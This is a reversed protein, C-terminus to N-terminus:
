ASRRRTRQAAHQRARAPRRSAAAPALADYYGPYGLKDADVYVFDIHPEEPLKALSEAAPGIEVTVRDGVGAADLNARAVSGWHEDVELCTLRGGEALGRAICIAGYGTFTGVELAM